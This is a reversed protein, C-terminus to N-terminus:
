AGLTVGDDRDKTNFGALTVSPAVPDADATTASLRTKIEGLAEHQEKTLELKVTEGELLQNKYSGDANLAFDDSLKDMQAVFAARKDAPINLLAAIKHPSERRQVVMSYVDVDPSDPTTEAQPSTKDQIKYKDGFKGLAEADHQTINYAQDARVKDLDVDPNQEAFRKAFGPVDKEIRSIWQGNKLIIQKPAPAAATEPETAALPAGLVELQAAKKADQERQLVVASAGETIEQTRNKIYEDVSVENGAKDKAVTGTKDAVYKLGKGLTDALGQAEEASITGNKFGESIGQAAAVARKVTDDKALEPHDKVMVLINQSMNAAASVAPMEGPQKSAPAVGNNGWSAQLWNPASLSKGDQLAALDASAADAKRRTQDLLATDVTDQAVGFDEVAIKGVPRNAPDTKSKDLILKKQDATISKQEVLIDLIQPVKGLEMPQNVAAAAKDAAAKAKIENLAKSPNDAAAVGADYQAKFTDPLKERDTKSELPAKLGKLVNQSLAAEDGLANKSIYQRNEESAEAYAIAAQLKSGMGALMAPKDLNAEAVAVLKFAEIKSLDADKLIQDAKVKADKEVRGASAAKAANARQAELEAYRDERANHAEDRKGASQELASPSTSAAAPAPADAPLAAKASSIPSLNSIFALITSQRAPEQEKAAIQKAAEAFKARDAEAIVLDKPASPDNGANAIMEQIRIIDEATGVREERAGGFGPTVSFRISTDPAEAVVPAPAAPALYAVYEQPVRDAAGYFAILNEPTALPKLDTRAQADSRRLGVETGNSAQMTVYPDERDLREAALREAEERAAEAQERQVKAAEAAQRGAEEGGQLYAQAIKGREGSEVSAVAADVHRRAQTAAQKVWSRADPNDEIESVAQAFTARDQPAIFVAARDGFSVRGRNAGEIAGIRAIAEEVTGAEYSAFEPSGVPSTVVFHIQRDGPTKMEPSLKALLDPSVPQKLEAELGSRDIPNGELTSRAVRVMAGAPYEGFPRSYIADYNDADVGLAINTAKYAADTSRLTRGDITDLSAEPNFASAPIEVYSNEPMQIKLEEIGGIEFNGPIILPKTNDLRATLVTTADLGNAEAFERRFRALTPNGGRLSVTDLLTALDPFQGPALTIPQQLRAM